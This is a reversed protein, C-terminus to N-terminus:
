DELLAINRMNVERILKPNATIQQFPADDRLWSKFQDTAAGIMQAKSHHKVVHAVDDPQRDAGARNHVLAGGHRAHEHACSAFRAQLRHARHSRSSRERGGVCRSRAYGVVAATSDLGGAAVAASAFAIFIWRNSEVKLRTSTEFIVKSPDEEAYM